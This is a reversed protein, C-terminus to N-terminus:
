SSATAAAADHLIKRELSPPDIPVPRHLLTSLSEFAFAATHRPQLQRLTDLTPLPPAAFGLRRLYIASDALTSETM